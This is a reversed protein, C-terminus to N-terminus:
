RIKWKEKYVKWCGLLFEEVTVEGNTIQQVKIAVNIKPFRSGNLIRYIVPQTIGLSRAFKQKTLRHKGLYTYIDM